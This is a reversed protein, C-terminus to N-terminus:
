FLVRYAVSYSTLYGFRVALPYSVPQKPFSFALPIRPQVLFPGKIGCHLGWHFQIQGIMETQPQSGAAGCLGRIAVSGQTGEGARKGQSTEGQLM